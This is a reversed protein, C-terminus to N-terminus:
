SDNEDKKFLSGWFYKGADEDWAQDLDRKEELRASDIIQYSNDSNLINVAVSENNEKIKDYAKDCELLEKKLYYSLRNPTVEDGTAEKFFQKFDETVEIETEDLVAPNELAAHLLDFAAYNLFTIKNLERCFTIKPKEKSM